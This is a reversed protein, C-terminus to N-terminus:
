GNKQLDTVLKDLEPFIRQLKDRPVSSQLAKVNAIAEGYLLGQNQRKYYGPQPHGFGYGQGGALSGFSDTFSIVAHRQTQTLSGYDTSYLWRSVMDVSTEGKLMEIRGKYSAKIRQWDATGAARIRDVLTPDNKMAKIQLWHEFEHKITGDLQCWQVFEPTGTTLIHLESGTFTVHSCDATPDFVLKPLDGYKEMGPQYEAALKGAIAEFNKRQEEMFKQKFDAIHAERDKGTLQLRDADLRARKEAYAIFEKRALGDTVAQQNAKEWNAKRTEYETQPKAPEPEAKEPASPQAQPKPETQPEPEPKEKPKGAKDFDEKAVYDPVASYSHTCNPHFVGAAELDAKTPLGPTAGTLSFLQGEYKACAECCNGSYDLMMVDCGEAACKDDYAARGANMLETRALMKFYAEDKWVRGGNDTFKFGPIEMARELLHKTVQQRTEGTMSATRLVEASISRLQKIHDFSMRTTRMAIQEYSSNLFYNVRGTDPAGLLNNRVGATKLQAAARDYFERMTQPLGERFQAGIDIGLQRYMAKVTKELDVLYKGSWANGPHRHYHELVRAFIQQQAKDCVKAIAEETALVTKVPKIPM